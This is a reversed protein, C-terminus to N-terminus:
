VPMTEQPTEAQPQNTGKESAEEAELVDLVALTKNLQRARLIMAVILGVMIIGTAAYGGIMYILNDPPM